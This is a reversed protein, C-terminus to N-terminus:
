ATSPLWPASVPGIREYGAIGGTLKCLCVTEDAGMNAIPRAVQRLAVITIETVLLPDVQSTGGGADGCGFSVEAQLPAAMGVHQSM